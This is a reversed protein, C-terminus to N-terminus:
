RRPAARAGRGSRRRVQGTLPRVWPRTVGPWACPSAPPRVKVLHQKYGTARRHSSNGPGVSWGIFPAGALTARDALNALDLPHLCGRIFSERPVPRAGGHPARRCRGRVVQTDVGSRRVGVSAGISRRPAGLSRQARARPPAAGPGARGAPAPRPALRPPLLQRRDASMSPRSSWRRPPRASRWGRRSRRSRCGRPESARGWGRVVEVLEM